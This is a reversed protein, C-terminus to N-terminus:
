FNFTDLTKVWTRSFLSAQGAKRNSSRAVRFSGLQPYKLTIKYSRIVFSHYNLAVVAGSSAVGLLYRLTESLLRMNFSLLVFNWKNSWRLRRYSFVAAVFVEVSSMNRGGYQPSRQLSAAAASLKVASQMFNEKKMSSRFRRMKHTSAVTTM